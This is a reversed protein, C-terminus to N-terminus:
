EVSVVTESGQLSAIEARLDEIKEKLEGIARKYIEIAESDVGDVLDQLKKNRDELEHNYRYSADLRTTLIRNENAFFLITLEMDRFEM